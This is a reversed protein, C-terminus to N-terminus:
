PKTINADFDKQNALTKKIMSDLDQVEKVNSADLGLEKAKNKFDQIISLSNSVENNALNRAGNAVQYQKELSTLIAMYKEAEKLLNSELSQLKKVQLNIDKISALEVKQNSLDEKFLKNGIEKLTSM